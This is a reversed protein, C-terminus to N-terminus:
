AESGKSFLGTLARRVTATVKPRPAADFPLPRCLDMATIGVRATLAGNILGEGFRRSLKSLVGGGLASGVLDDGMAVAGTAALHAIVARTLRWAGITGSRGGYIEAVRRIMSVNAYLAVVVDALALPVLATVTAVRASAAEVEALALADLPALLEREALILLDHADVLDAQRAALRAHGWASDGKARHMRQIRALCDGALALDSTDRATQAQTRIGEIRSLRSIAALERLALLLLLAILLGLLGAAIGGLVSSRALLGVVFDWAWVGIALTVLAGLVRGTWRLVPSVRRGAIRALRTGTVSTPQAAPATEPDGNSTPPIDPLHDLEIEVPGRPTSESM